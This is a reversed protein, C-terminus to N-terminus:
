VTNQFNHKENKSVFNNLLIYLPLPFICGYLYLLTLIFLYCSMSIIDTLSKPKGRNHDLNPFQCSEIPINLILTDKLLM